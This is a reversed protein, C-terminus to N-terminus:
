KIGQLVKLVAAPSGHDGHGGGAHTFRVKNNTDIKM